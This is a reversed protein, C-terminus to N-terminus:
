FHRRAFERGSGTKLYREFALAKTRSKFAVATEIRWPKYKKTHLCRGANHDRLRGVLDTTTGSYHVSVDAKSVIIYVYVFGAM